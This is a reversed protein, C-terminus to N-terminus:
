LYCSVDDHDVDYVYGPCKTGPVVIKTYMLPGKRCNVQRSARSDMRVILSICAYFLVPCM